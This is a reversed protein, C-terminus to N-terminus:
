NLKSLDLTKFQPTDRYHTLYYALTAIREVDTRPQKQFLFEKPSMDTDASFSPYPASSPSADAVPSSIASTTGAPGRSPGHSASRLQLFTAAADFIRQRAEVDLDQVAQIVAQLAAFEEAPGQADAM